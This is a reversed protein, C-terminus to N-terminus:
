SAFSDPAGSGEQTLLPPQAMLFFIRLGGAACVPHDPNGFYKLTREKSLTGNEVVGDAGNLSAERSRRSTADVGGTDPPSHRVCDM